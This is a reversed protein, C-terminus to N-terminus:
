FLMYAIYNLYSHFLIIRSQTSYHIWKIGISMPLPLYLEILKLGDQDVYCTVSNSSSLFFLVFLFGCIIIIITIVIMMMMMMMM